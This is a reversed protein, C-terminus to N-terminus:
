LLAALDALCVDALTSVVRDAGAVESAPFSTTLGLVKLGAEKAARIGAPSDEVAVCRRPDLKTRNREALREVTLRYGAPDPKSREVDEAAVIVAIHAATGLVQLALEVEGRLAGSCIALALGRAAAAEITELAGPLARASRSIEERVLVSKAQSLSEIRVRDIPLGNDRLIATFADRDSYGIYTSMYQEHTLPIGTERRLVEQFCALHIPESDAIVGDFDLILADPLVPLSRWSRGPGTAAPRVPFM